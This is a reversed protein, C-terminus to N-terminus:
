GTVRGTGRSRLMRALRTAQNGGLGAATPRKLKRQARQQTEIPRLLRNRELRDIKPPPAAPAAPVPRPTQQVPRIGHIGKAALVAKEPNRAAGRAALREVGRARRAERRREGSVRGYEAVCLELYRYMDYSIARLEPCRREFVRLISDDPPKLVRVLSSLFECFSQYWRVLEDSNRGAASRLAFGVVLALEVGSTDVPPRASRPVVSVVFPGDVHLRQRQDVSHELWELWDKLNTDATPGSRALNERFHKRCSKCPLINRMSWLVQLVDNRCAPDDAACETVRHLMAWYFRGWSHPDQDGMTAGVPWLARMNIDM